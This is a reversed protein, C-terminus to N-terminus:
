IRSKDESPLPPVKTCSELLVALEKFGDIECCSALLPWGIRLEERTLANESRVRVGCCRLVEPGLDEVLCRGEKDGTLSTVDGELIGLNEQM